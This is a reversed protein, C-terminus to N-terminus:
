NKERCTEKFKSNSQQNQDEKLVKQDKAKLSKFKM